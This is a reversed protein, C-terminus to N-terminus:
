NKRKKSQNDEKQALIILLYRFINIFDIFLDVSHWVYDKDGIRRKEIILQTDYLVFGCMVAFGFYLYAQFVLVSGIFINALFLISLLSFMSLLPAGLFLYQGRPSLLACLSFCTFLVATSLFATSIIAPNIRIVTDLLPGLGLGTFFSFGLLLGIRTKANKGSEDPTAFLTLLFGIAVFSTLFNGSLINTFLHVYAGAAAALTSMTLCTYVQKLHHQIPPELTSNFNRIAANISFSTRRNTTSAM